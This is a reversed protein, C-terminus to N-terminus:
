NVVVADTKGSAGSRAPLPQLLRRVMEEPLPKGPGPKTDPMVVSGYWLVKEDRSSVLRVILTVPGSSVSRSSPRPNGEGSKRGDPSGAYRGRNLPEQPDQARSLAPRFAVLDLWLDATEPRVLVFGKARLEQLVPERFEWPEASYQGDLQWVQQRPNPAVTALSALATGPAVDYVFSPEHTCGLTLVLAALPLLTLRPTM